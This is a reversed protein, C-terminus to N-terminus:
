LKSVSVPIRRKAHISLRCLIRGGKIMEVAVGIAEFGSALVDLDDISEWVAISGDGFIVFHICELNRKFIVANSSEDESEILGALM